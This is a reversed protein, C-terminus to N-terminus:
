SSRTVHWIADPSLLAPARSATGVVSIALADSVHRTNGYEGWFLIKAHLSYSGPTLWIPPINLSVLYTGPKPDGLGLDSSERRLHVMTGHTPSELIWFFSFGVADEPVSVHSCVEWSESQHVTSGGGVIVPRSLTGEITGNLQPNLDLLDFYARICTGVDGIVVVEGGDLVLGTQCLAQVAAMNHTVFLVTRGESIVEGMKGLCRNQFAADGVALVEDVLLIEPELHAAVSFALRMQMGSSYRKVPTDVFRDVGAFEVIAELKQRIERRSMGLIAGNLYVNERGTLENHFGTGVELLSGVRGRLIAQGKTPVTIGSLIKLLTSKGAGNRGIVGVAHGAPIQCNVDRLAWIWPKEGRQGRALRSIPARAGTALAERLTGYRQRSGGIRYSKWIGSVDIASATM